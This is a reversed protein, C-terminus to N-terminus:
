LLNTLVYIYNMYELHCKFYQICDSSEGVADWSEWKDQIKSYMHKTKDTRLSLYVVRCFPPPTWVMHHKVYLSSYRACIILNIDTCPRWLQSKITRDYYMSLVILHAICCKRILFIVRFQRKGLSSFLKHTHIYIYICVCVLVLVCM